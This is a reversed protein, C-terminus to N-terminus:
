GKKSDTTSLIFSYVLRERLGMPRGYDDRVTASAELYRFFLTTRCAFRKQGGALLAGAFLLSLLGVAALKKKIRRM